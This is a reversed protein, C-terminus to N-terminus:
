LHRREPANQGRTVQIQEMAPPKLSLHKEIATLLEFRSIPKTLHANCGAHSSAQKAQTSDNATLALIQTSGKGREREVARISRTAALGDLVPMQIDMLILDFDMAAFRDVAAQGDEEFTLQYPGGNLYIQVLMRNDLSDDVVLINSLSPTAHGAIPAQRHSRAEVLSLNAAVDAATLSDKKPHDINAAPIPEQVGRKELVGRVLNFLHGRAVPRVAYGSVGAEKCRASDTPQASAVLMVIPLLAVRRIEAATEFGDVGPVFSTAVIALSYPQEGAPRDRLSALAEAPLPFTITDLGWGRLMERLIVSSSANDDILLVRKARQFELPVWVIQTSKPGLDFPITFRFTSGQGVSSTVTLNGGMAEVLRRSIGLGLGTGGYKRTLSADAQTFDDFITALREAPIGIGTDSVTFDIRCTKGSGHSRVTLLIEGSHTFKTANGLLCALIQKLRLPDGILATALGPSLHSLLLLNKVSAKAATLEIAQDVLEELDFEVRALDLHGAEITALDLIDKILVLLSSGARRLAEVYKTQESSLESELLMDAMGLVANMPTLMEHSMGTLFASKALNLSRSEGAEWLAAINYGRELAYRISRELLAATLEGKILYDAAGAKAATVDVDRDGAGTLLIVQPHGPKAKVEALLDLGSRQGLRYDLLCVDCHGHLMAELGQEYTPVWTLDFSEGGAEKLLDAVTVREDEDDDVLLVRVAAKDM